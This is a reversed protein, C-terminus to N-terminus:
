GADTQPSDRLKSQRQTLGLEEPRVKPSPARSHKTDVQGSRVGVYLTDAYSTQLETLLATGFM